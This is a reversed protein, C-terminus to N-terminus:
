QLTAVYQYARELEDALEWDCPHQEDGAFWTGRLVPIRPGSHAWFAPHLSLNDLSVEFLGDQLHLNIRPM